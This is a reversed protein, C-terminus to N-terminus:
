LSASREGEGCGTASQPADISISSRITPTAAAVSITLLAVGIAPLLLQRGSAPTVRDKLIAM